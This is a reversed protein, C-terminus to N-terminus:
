TGEKIMEALYHYWAQGAYLELPFRHFDSPIQRLYKLIEEWLTESSREIGIRRLWFCLTSFQCNGDGAPNFAIAGGDALPLLKEQSTLPIHYKEKHFKQRRKREQKKKEKENCSISAIDEVSIWREEQEHSNPQVFAVKYLSTTLHRGIM